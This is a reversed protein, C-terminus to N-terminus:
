KLLIMKRTQRFTNVGEVSSAEISYFYIGSSLTVGNTNFETEHMGAGKVSNVLVSVLEGTVNYVTIKVNSAYPLTYQIKTSPNFPNPYNQSLTYEKPGLIIDDEVSVTGGIALISQTLVDVAFMTNHMGKSGDYHIIQYNFYAKKQNLNNNDIQSYDISDIGVPPLYIRLLRELGAIEKPISEIIGNGDYDAKATFDDWSTKAGHCGTCKATHFFNNEEDNLIWSHGGVRDRTVTGTDTTAVMHCDVCANELALKHPTSAFPSGFEAANEGLFVDAQVSYHPGWHSSTVNSQTYSVNDRRGKHCSMCLKGLGGETYHYGNGLTDAIVPTTRLAYQNNGGHPDHCTACTHNKLQSKQMGTTNTTLGKTFNIFGQGDHCRICNGLNNNQGSSGQAFSNSWVIESHPSNEWQAYRNHRWPEDHCQGCVGAEISIQIRDPSGSTSAHLSGPGHCNECGITAHNVLAPFLTKLSDWKGPNPPGQWAWGLNSAIDDFGNNPAELNHDYGVTHCKMCNTGYYAAGSTIQRKFITAHKSDKWSDFIESFAPSSQHCTMCNPWQAAVGEFNGVGVFDAASITATTDHSGGGTTISLNVVYLGKIDPKFQVWTPNIVELEATSNAPKSILTFTATIIPEDNGINRASLYVYTLNPVINLGTSVSNTTFGMTELRHPTLPEAVIKARQAYTLNFTLITILIIQLINKM